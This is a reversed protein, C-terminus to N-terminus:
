IGHSKQAEKEIKQRYIKTKRDKEKIKLSDPNQEAWGQWAKRHSFGKQKEANNQSDNKHQSNADFTKAFHLPM